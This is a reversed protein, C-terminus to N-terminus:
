LEVRDFVENEPGDFRPGEPSALRPNSRPVPQWRVEHPGPVGWDIQAAAQEFRRIGESEEASAAAWVRLEVEGSDAGHAHLVGDQDAPLRTPPRVLRRVSEPVDGRGGRSMICGKARGTEAPQRASDEAHDRAMWRLSRWGGAGGRSR